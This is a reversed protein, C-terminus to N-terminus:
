RVRVELRAKEKESEALKAESVKLQQILRKQIEDSESREEALKGQLQKKATELKGCADKHTDTEKRAETMEKTLREIQKLLEKERM